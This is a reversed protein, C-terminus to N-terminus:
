YWLIFFNHYLPTKKLTLPVSTFMSLLLAAGGGRSAAAADEQREAQAQGQGEQRVPAGERPRGGCDLGVTGYSSGVKNSEQPDIPNPALVGERSGLLINNFLLLLNHTPDTFPRSPPVQNWVWVKAGGGDPNILFVAQGRKPKLGYQPRWEGLWIVSCLWSLM